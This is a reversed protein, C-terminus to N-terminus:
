FYGKKTSSEETWNTVDPTNTTNDGNRITANAQSTTAIGEELYVVEVEFLLGTYKIKKENTITSLRM